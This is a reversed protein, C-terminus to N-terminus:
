ANFMVPTEWDRDPTLTLESLDLNEEVGLPIKSEMAFGGISINREGVIWRARIGMDIVKGVGTMNLAYPSSMYADPLIGAPMERILIRQVQDLETSDTMGSKSFTDMVLKTLSAPEADDRYIRLDFVPHRDTDSALIQLHQLVGDDCYEVFIHTLGNAILVEYTECGEDKETRTGYQVLYERLPLNSLPFEATEDFFLLAYDLGHPKPMEQLM